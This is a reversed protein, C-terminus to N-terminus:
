LFFKVSGEVRIPYVLARCSYPLVFVLSPICALFTRLWPRLSKRRILLLVIVTIPLLLVCFFICSTAAMFLIGSTEVDFERREAMLGGVGGSVAILGALLLLLFASPQPSSPKMPNAQRFRSARPFALKALWREM